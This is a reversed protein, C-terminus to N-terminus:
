AQQLKFDPNKLISNLLLLLKRMVATLALKPPKGAQRLRQYFAKLIPNKRVAALAAMYLGKRVAPRGGGIFRKGKWTGSERPHPALGALSAAQRRGLRGLEPLEALVSWATQRGVGVVATLQTVKTDFEADSKQLALILAEVAKLQKELARISHHLARQLAKITLSAVQLRLHILLQLLRQRCRVHEQLTREAATPPRTAPPQLAVGYAALVAADIRDTKARTGRAKAFDRVQRANLLTYPLGAAALAALVAREYGGSAECLVQVPQGIARLLKLLRAHGAKTNPLEEAKTPLHLQLTAKHIDLGAYLITSNNQSMSTSVLQTFVREPLPELKSCYGM